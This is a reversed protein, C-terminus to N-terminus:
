HIEVSETYIKIIDKEAVKFPHNKLKNKNEAM